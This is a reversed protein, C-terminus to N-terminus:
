LLDGFAPLHPINAAIANSRLTDLWGDMAKDWPQPRIMRRIARVGQRQLEAAARADDEAEAYLQNNHQDRAAKLASAEETWQPALLSLKDTVLRDIATRASTDEAPSLASYPLWLAKIQAEIVQTKAFVDGNTIKGINALYYATDRSVDPKRATLSLSRIM